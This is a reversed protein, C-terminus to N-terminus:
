KLIFEWGSPTGSQEWYRAEQLQMFDDINTEYGNSQWWAQVFLSSEIQGLKHKTTIFHPYFTSNFTVDEVFLPITFEHPRGAIYIINEAYPYYHNWRDVLLNYKDGNTYIDLLRKAYQRTIMYAGVSWNYFSRRRFHIDYVDLPTEADQGRALSLQVVNWYYQNLKTLLESWTFTWYKSLGLNMDDELFVAIDTNSTYYWQEIAKLHSLITAIHGSEIAKLPPGGTVRHDNTFDHERGDFAVIKTFSINLSILHNEIRQQREISDALTIYYVPPFDKFKNM